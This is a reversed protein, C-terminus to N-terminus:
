KKQNQQLSAKMQAEEDDIYPEDMIAKLLKEDEVYKEFVKDAGADHAKRRYAFALKSWVFIPNKYGRGRLWKICNLGDDPGNKLYLGIIFVANDYFKEIGLCLEIKSYVHFLEYQGPYREDLLKKLRNSDYDNDGFLFVKKM